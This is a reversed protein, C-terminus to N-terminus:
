RLLKHLDYFVLAVILGRLGLGGRRAILRVDMRGLM